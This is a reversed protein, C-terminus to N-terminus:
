VRRRLSRKLYLHCNAAAKFELQVSWAQSEPDTQPKFRHSDRPPLVGSDFEEM